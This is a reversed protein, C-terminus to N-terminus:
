TSSLHWLKCHQCKYPRLSAGHQWDAAAAAGEAKSKSDYTIKEACPLKNKDNEM